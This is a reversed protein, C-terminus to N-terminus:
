TQWHGGLLLAVVGGFALFPGYPITQKRAGVGQRVLIAIAFVAGALLGILLGQVVSKGLAAGLLAALKVDGMGMGAPFILIPVFLFLAAGLGALLWEVTQDPYFAIQLVLVLALAPLVIANPILRRELDIAALLVLTAAFVAGVLTRGEFGFRVLCAAALALSVAVVANRESRSLARVLAWAGPYTPEPPASM